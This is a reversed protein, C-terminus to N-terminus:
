VQGVGVGGCIVIGGCIGRPEHVPFNPNSAQKDCDNKLQNKERSIEGAGPRLIIIVIARDPRMSRVIKQAGSNARGRAHRHSKIKSRRRKRWRSIVHMM